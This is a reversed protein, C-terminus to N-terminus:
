TVRLAGKSGNLLWLEYLLLAVPSLLQGRLAFSNIARRAKLCSTSRIREILQRWTRLSGVELILSLQRLLEHCGVHRIQLDAPSCTEDCSLIQRIEHNSATLCAWIVKEPGLAGRQRAIHHSARRGPKLPAGFQSLPPEEVQTEPSGKVWSLEPELEDNSLNEVDTVM